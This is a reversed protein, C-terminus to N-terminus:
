PKMYAKWAEPLSATRIAKEVDMTLQADKSTLWLPNMIGLDEMIMKAKICGVVTGAVCYRWAKGYWKNISAAYELADSILLEDARRVSSATADANSYAVDHLFCALDLKNVPANMKWNRLRHKIMTFPGCYNYGPLHLEYSTLWDSLDFALTSDIRALLVILTLALYLGM